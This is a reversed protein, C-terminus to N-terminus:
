DNNPPDWSLRITHPAQPGLKTMAKGESLTQEAEAQLWPTWELNLAPAGLWGVMVWMGQLQDQSLYEQLLTAMPVQGGPM